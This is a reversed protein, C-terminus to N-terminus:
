KRGLYNRGLISGPFRSASIFLFLHELFDISEAITRDRPIADHLLPINREALM